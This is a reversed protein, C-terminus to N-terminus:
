ESLSKKTNLKLLEQAEKQRDDYSLFPQTGDLNRKKLETQSQKMAFLMSTMPNILVVHLSGDLAQLLSTPFAKKWEGERYKM